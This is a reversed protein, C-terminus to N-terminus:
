QLMPRITQLIKPDLIGAHRWQVLGDADILFTEPIGYVGWELGIQGDIDQGVAQFPNGFEALFQEADSRRDKYAIGIVPVGSDALAALLPMEIRCPLCWSAFFNVLVAQGRYDALSLTLEPQQLLSIEAEPVAKQLLVSPLQQPNRQGTITQYLALGAIGVLLLFLLLPLAFRIM